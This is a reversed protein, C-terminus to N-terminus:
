RDRWYILHGTASINGKELSTHAVAHVFSDLSLQLASLTKWFGAEGLEVIGGGEVM